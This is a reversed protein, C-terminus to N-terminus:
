RWREPDITELERAVAADVEAVEEAHAKGFARRWGSITSRSREQGALHARVADTVLKRLTEGRLAASAKAARFLEDPLEITTRM